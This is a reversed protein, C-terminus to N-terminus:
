TPSVVKIFNFILLQSLFFILIIQELKIGPKRKTLKM